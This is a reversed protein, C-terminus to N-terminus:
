EKSRGIAGGTHQDDHGCLYRDILRRAQEVGSRLAEESTTWNRNVPEVAPLDAARGDRTVRVEPTWDGTETQKATVEVDYGSMSFTENRM